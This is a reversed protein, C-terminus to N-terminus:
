GSRSCGRTERRSTARSCSARAPRGRPTRWRRSSSSGRRRRACPRCSRTCTRAAGSSSSRRACSGRRRSPIATRAGRTATAPPRRCRRARTSRTRPRGRAGRRRGRRRRAPVRAAPAAGGALRRPGPVGRHPAAAVPRLAVHRRRARPAAALRRARGPGGRAEGGARPALPQGSLDLADLSEAPPLLSELHLHHLPDEYLGALGADSVGLADVVGRAVDRALTPSVADAAGNAPRTGSGSSGGPRGPGDGAKSEPDVPTPMVFTEPAAVIPEGDTRWHRILAWRPTPEGPYWKGQAFSSVGRPAFETGLRELLAAGRELKQPGLAADNWEPAELDDVSVFTPEGGM